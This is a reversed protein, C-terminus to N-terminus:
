TVLRLYQLSQDSNDSVGEIGPESFSGLDQCNNTEILEASHELLAHMTPTFIDM